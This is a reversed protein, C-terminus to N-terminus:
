VNITWLYTNVLTELNSGPPIALGMLTANLTGSEIPGNNVINTAIAEIYAQNNIVGTSSSKDINITSISSPVLPFPNVFSTSYMYYISIDVLSTFLELSTDTFGQLAYPTINSANAANIITITSPLNPVLILSSLSQIDLSLLKTNALSPIVTILSNNSLSLNILSNPFSTPFGTDLLASCNSLEILEVTSPLNPISTLSTLNNGILSLLQTNTLSPITTFNNDGISLETLRNPFVPPLIGDNLQCNSINLVKLSDPLIPLSALNIVGTLYLYLLCTTELSTNIFGTLAYPILLTNNQAYISKITTPLQPIKDLSPLDNIYLEAIQTNNLQPIISIFANNTIFLTNLADPFLFPLSVDMLNTCNTLNLTQLTNPLLSLGSGDTLTIINDCGSLDLNLLNSTSLNLPLINTQSYNLSLSELSLPIDPFPTAPTNNINTNSAGLTILNSLNIFQNPPLSTLNTCGDINLSELSLPLPLPLNDITSSDFVLTKITDPLAPVTGSYILSTANFYTLNTNSLIPFVTLNCSDISLSELSEPMTGLDILGSITGIDSLYAVKLNINTSLDLNQLYKNSIIELEILSIPFTPYSIPNSSNIKLIELTSPFNNNFPETTSAVFNNTLYLEKLQPTQTSFDIPLPLTLSTNDLNLIQLSASLNSLTAMNVVCGTMNLKILNPTIPIDTFQTDSINLEILSLPLSPLSNIYNGPIILTQLGSPLVFPFSSIYTYSFNFNLLTSPLQPINSPSITSINSITLTQLQPNSAYFTDVGTLITSVGEIILKKANYFSNIFENQSNVTLSHIKRLHINQLQTLTNFESGDALSLNLESGQLEVNLLSIAKAFNNIYLIDRSILTILYDAKIFIIGQVNPYNQQPFNPILDESFSNSLKVSTTSGTINITVEESYGSCGQSNYTHSFGTINVAYFLTSSGDGWNITGDGQLEIYIIVSSNFQLLINVLISDPIFPVIKISACQCAVNVITCGQVKNYTNISGNDADGGTYSGYGAQPIIIPKGAQTKQQIQQAIAKDRLRQTLFSSSLMYSSM